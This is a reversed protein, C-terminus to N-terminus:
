ILKICVIHYIPNQMVLQNHKGFDMSTCITVFIGNAHWWSHLISQNFIVRHQISSVGGTCWRISHKPTLFCGPLKVVKQCNLFQLDNNKEQLLDTSTVRLIQHRNLWKAGQFSKNKFHGIYTTSSQESVCRAM